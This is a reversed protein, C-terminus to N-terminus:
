NFLHMLNTIFNFPRFYKCGWVIALLEKEVTPYNWEAKSLTRSAYVETLDRGIDRQSLVAGLADNSADRTLIFLKSFDPYQLLPQSTLRNLTNFAEDTDENWIFPINNRLLNTLPKAINSFNPIFRRYYGALGLFGKRKKTTNPVPFEKVASLKSEDPLLGKCTLRHEM